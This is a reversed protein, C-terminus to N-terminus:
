NLRCVAIVILYLIPQHILYILLSHRGAANIMPVEPTKLFRLLNHKKMLLYLCYGTLYIFYWPLIPFYDVSFFSKDTFGFFTAIYGRYLFDPLKVGAFYGTNINKCLVFFLLFIILGAGPNIRKLIFNILFTILVACGLFTLIGFVIRNRPMLILSAATILAGAILIILANKLPIKSLHFCFGSVAIFTICISQQWFIVPLTSLLKQPLVGFNALDWFGHYLVMSIIAIARITDVANLRNTTNSM